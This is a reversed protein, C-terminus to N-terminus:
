LEVSSGHMTPISLNVHYYKPWLKGTVLFANDAKNYAIGNLCDSSPKRSSHPYLASLDFTHVVAGTTSDIQLIVDKYWLNAYIFGNVYELENIQFIPKATIPDKIDIHRVKTLEKQLLTPFAFYTIRNSGDSAIMHTGDTTLGWGEGNHTAYTINGILSLSSADFILMVKNKWTLMYVRNEHMVIGEAFYKNTVRTQKIVTGTTLDVTRLSSKGYRGCSEYLTNGEILLGQTFCTEDHPHSSIALVKSTEAGAKALVQMVLSLLVTYCLLVHM